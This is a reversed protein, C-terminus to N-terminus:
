PSAAQAAMSQAQHVLGRIYHVDAPRRVPLQTVHYLNGSRVTVDVYGSTREEKILLFLLGLLCAFALIVALVIAYAPIAHEVRSHDQSIWHSGALPASGNPTVIWARGIGIDGISFLIPDQAPEVQGTM